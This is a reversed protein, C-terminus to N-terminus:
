KHQWIMGNSYRDPFGKWPEIKKGDDSWQSSSGELDLFACAENQAKVHCDMMALTFHKNITNIWQTNWTPEFYHGFDMEKARAINPQPHGAVNHRANRYTLMYTHEGGTDEFLKQMSPTHSVDDFEGAIYLLPTDVKALAEPKFIGHQNGWPAFAIAARWRPDVKPDEYQGGACSNFTAAIAAIQKPDKIGTFTSITAEKFDYCGGLTNVAGYGGMSYGILGAREPDIHKSIFNEGTSLQNLTFQQDRSRNYLTSPFGAFPAKILDVDANTSDTHDIAAVIYGHSALHEGLYFMLTRYGTYGHSIVVLPMKEKSELVAADRYAAGQISFKHDLRTVNDYHALTSQELNQAPYWVELTLTRDAHKGTLPNMQKPNTINITRVGVPLKGTFAQSPTIDVSLPPYLQEPEPAAQLAQTCMLFVGCVSLILKSSRWKSLTNM